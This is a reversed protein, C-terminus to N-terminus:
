SPVDTQQDTSIPLYPFVTNFNSTSFGQGMQMRLGIIIDRVLQENAASNNLESKAVFTDLRNQLEQNQAIVSNLKDTIDSPISSNTTLNPNVFETFTTNYFSSIKNNNYNVDSLPISLYFQQYVSASPTLIINGAEDFKYDFAGYREFNQVQLAFNPM